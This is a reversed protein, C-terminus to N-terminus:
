PNRSEPGGGAEAKEEMRSYREHKRSQRSQLLNAAMGLTDNKRPRALGGPMFQSGGANTHCFLQQSKDAQLPSVIGKSCPAAAASMCNHRLKQLSPYRVRNAARSGATRLPDLARVRLNDSTASRSGQPSKSINFFGTRHTWSTKSARNRQQLLGFINTPQCLTSITLM